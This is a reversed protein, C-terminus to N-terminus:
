GVKRPRACGIRRIKPNHAFNDSLSIGSTNSKLFRRTEAPPNTSFRAGSLENKTLNSKVIADKLKGLVASDVAEFPDYGFTKVPDDLEARTVGHAGRPLSGGQKGIRGLHGPFDEIFVVHGSFVLRGHSFGNPPSKM